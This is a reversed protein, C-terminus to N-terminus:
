LSNKSKKSIHKQIVKKGEEKVNPLKRFGWVIDSAYKRTAEIDVIPLAYDKNIVFTTRFRQDMREIDTENFYKQM